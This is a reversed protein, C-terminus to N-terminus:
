WLYVRLLRLEFEVKVDSSVRRKIEEKLEGQQTSGEALSLCGEGYCLHPTIDGDAKKATHEHSVCMEAMNELWVPESCYPQSWLSLSLLEPHHAAM